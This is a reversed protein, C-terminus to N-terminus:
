NKKTKTFPNMSSDPLTQKKELLVLTDDLKGHLKGWYKTFDAASVTQVSLCILMAIIILKTAFKQVFKM